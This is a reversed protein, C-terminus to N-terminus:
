ASYSGPDATALGGLEAHWSHVSADDYRRSKQASSKWLYILIVYESWSGEGGLPGWCPGQAEQGGLADRPRADVM